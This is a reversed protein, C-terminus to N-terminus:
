GATGTLAPAPKGAALARMEHTVRRRLEQVIRGRERWAVDPGVGVARLADEWAQATLVHLVLDATQRMMVLLQEVTVGGALRFAMRSETERLRRELDLTEALDAAADAQNGGAELLAFLERLPVVAKEPDKALLSKATAALDRAARWQAFGATGKAVRETLESSLAHAVAIQERATRLEPSNVTALYGDRMAGAPFVKAYRSHTGDKWHPSAPGIPSKGGHFKCRERGRSPWATCYRPPDTRPIKAGCKGEVPQESGRLQRDFHGGQGGARRGRSM